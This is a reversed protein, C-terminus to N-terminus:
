SIFKKSTVTSPLLKFLKTHMVPRTNYNINLNTAFLNSVDLSSFYHLYIFFDKRQM